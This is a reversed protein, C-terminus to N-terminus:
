LAIEGLWLRALECASHGPRWHYKAAPAALNGLRHAVLDRARHPKPDPIVTGRQRHRAIQEQQDASFLRDGTRVCADEATSADVSAVEAAASSVTSTQRSRSAPRSRSTEINSAEDQAIGFARIPRRQDFRGLPAPTVGAVTAVMSLVLGPETPIWGDGSASARSVLLCRAEVGCNHRLAM